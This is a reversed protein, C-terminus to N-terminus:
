RGSARRRVIGPMARPLTVRRFTHWRTAGLALSAEKPERPVNRVADEILPAIFPIVLLALMISALLVSNDHGTPDWPFAGANWPVGDPPWDQPDVGVKTPDATSFEFEGTFKPSMFPAVFVVAMLAYVIPPIGAFIGLLVRLARGLWGLPFESLLDGDGARRAARAGDRARHDRAHGLIAPRLGYRGIGPSYQTSFDASLLRKLSGGVCPGDVPTATPTAATPTAVAGAVPTRPM